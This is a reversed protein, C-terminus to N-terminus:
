FYSRKLLVLVHCRLIRPSFFIHQNTNDQRTLSPHQAVPTLTPITLSPSLCLFVCALYFSVLLFPPPLPPPTMSVNRCLSLSRFPARTKNSGCAHKDPQWRACSASKEELGGEIYPLRLLFVTM